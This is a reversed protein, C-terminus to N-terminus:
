FLLLHYFIYLPSCTAVCPISMESQVQSTFAQPQCVCALHMASIIYVHDMLYYLDAVNDKVARASYEVYYYMNTRFIALSMSLKDFTFATVVMTLSSSCSYPLSLDKALLDSIFFAFPFKWDSYTSLFGNFIEQCCM